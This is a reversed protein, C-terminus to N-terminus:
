ADDTVEGLIMQEVRQKAKSILTEAEKRLQGARERRDAVEQGIEKQRKLTPLPIEVKMVRQTPVRPLSTGTQYPVIQDLTIKSLLIAQLYRPDVRRRDPRLVIAEGSCVGDFEALWVKNLYPRMRGYLLDGIRFKPSSSLIQDGPMPEFDVLEGTNSSINGLSIYNIEREDMDVAPTVRENVRKAVELLAVQSEVSANPKMQGAAAEVDFRRGALEVSNVVFRKQDSMQALEIKLEGLVYGDIGGLLVEVEALMAQRTAYAEQMIAAIQDQLYSPPLPVPVRKIRELSLKPQVAGGAHHEIFAQGYRSDLYIALYEPNVDERINTIRAMNENFQCAPLEDRLVGINGITGAITIVVDMYELPYRAIIAQQKKTIYVVDSLDVSLDRIDTSRVYPIGDPAYSSGVPLRKGGRVDGIDAISVLNYESSKLQEILDRAPSVFQEVTFRDIVVIESFQIAESRM